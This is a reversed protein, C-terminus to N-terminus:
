GHTGGAAYQRHVELSEFGLARYTHMAAANDEDVYLEVAELGRDRLHDLGLITVARGLGEGQHDPSVGVVYVEGVSGEPPDVKTWHFAVVRDPAAREVVLIFGEPDFWPQAMRQDLDARTLSGQEPHDAFAEANVRLWESEDRGREFARVAYAEPLSAPPWGPGQALRRGMRHLSRVPRLGRARAFSSAAPSDLHSWVRVGRPLAALLVTGVGRRRAAPSVVLEASPSEGDSGARSQAYGVVEDDELAMLHVVEDVDRAEVSLRFQESLASGGDVEAAAAALALVAESEAETPPVSADRLFINTRAM